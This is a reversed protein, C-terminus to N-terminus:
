AGEEQGALFEDLWDSQKRIRENSAGFDAGVMNNPSQKKAPASWREWKEANRCAAKWDKMPTKGVMWGKSSYFDIFGQPDVASHREAVYSQVEALTPPTFREARTKCVGNPTDTNIQKAKSQKTNAKKAKEFLTQNKQNEEFADAKRPRGGQKGSESRKKCTDEYAARAIDIDNRISPWIFRENGIIIPDKGDKYDQMAIILRGIEELEMAEFLSKYRDWLPIYDFAM